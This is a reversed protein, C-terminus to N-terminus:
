FSNPPKKLQGQKLIQQQDRSNTELQLLICPLFLERTSIFKEHIHQQTPIKKRSNQTTIQNPTQQKNNNNNSLICALCFHLLSAKEHLATYPNYFQVQKSITQQKRTLLSTQNPDSSDAELGLARKRIYFWMDSPCAKLEHPSIFVTKVGSDTSTFLEQARWATKGVFTNNFTSTFRTPQYISYDQFGRGSNQPLFQSQFRLQLVTSSYALYDSTSVPRKKQIGAQSADQM